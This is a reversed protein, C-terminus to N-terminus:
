NPNSSGAAVAFYNKVRPSCYETNYKLPIIKKSYLYVASETIDIALGRKSSKISIAAVFLVHAPDLRYTYGARSRTPHTYRGEASTSETKEGQLSKQSAHLQRM